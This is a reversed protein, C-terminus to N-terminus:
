GHGHHFGGVRDPRLGCGEDRPNGRPVHSLVDDPQARYCREVGGVFDRCVDDDSDWGSSISTMGANNVVVDLRGWRDLATRVLEDAAGDVTLDAIVAVATDGIESVRDHVRQSTAGLVVRAGDAVLERAVAIGIGDPAGAGTIIAVRDRFRPM